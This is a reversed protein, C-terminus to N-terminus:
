IRLPGGLNTLAGTRHTFPLIHAGSLVSGRRLVRTRRMDWELARLSCLPRAPRQRSIALATINQNYDTITAFALGYYLVAGTGENGSM